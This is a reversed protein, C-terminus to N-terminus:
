ASRNRVQIFRWCGIWNQISWDQRFAVNQPMGHGWCCFRFYSADKCVYFNCFRDTLYANLDAMGLRGCGDLSVVGSDCVYNCISNFLLFRWNHIHTEIPKAIAHQLIFIVKITSTSLEVFAVVECFMMWGAMVLTFARWNQVRIIHVCIENPLPTNSHTNVCTGLVYMSWELIGIIQTCLVLKRM